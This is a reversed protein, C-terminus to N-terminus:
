CAVTLPLIIQDRADCVSHVHISECSVHCALHLLTKNQNPKPKTPNKKKKQTLCPRVICGLSAM